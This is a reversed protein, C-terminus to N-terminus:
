SAAAGLHAAPGRLEVSEGDDTGNARGRREFLRQVVAGAAATAATEAAHTMTRRWLPNGRREVAAYQEAIRLAAEDMLRDREQRLRRGRRELWRDTSRAPPVAVRRARAPLRKSGRTLPGADRRRMVIVGVVAAGAAAGVAGTIVAVRLGARGIHRGRDRLQHLTGTLEDRTQEIQRRTDTAAEGM